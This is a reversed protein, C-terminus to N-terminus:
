NDQWQRLKAAAEDDREFVPQVQDGQHLTSTEVRPTPKFRQDLSDSAYDYREM